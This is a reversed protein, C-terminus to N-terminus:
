HQIIVPTVNKTGGTAQQNLQYAGPAISLAARVPTKGTVNWINIRRGLLNFMEVTSAQTGSLVLVGERTDYRWSFNRGLAYRRGKVGSSPVISFAAPSIDEVSEDQYNAIRIRVQNSVLSMGAISEPVTWQYTGWGPDSATRASPVISFWTNGNDPSVQIIVGAIDEFASWRVILVSGVQVTSGGLPDLLLLRKALSGKSIIEIANEFVDDTGTSSAEIQLGNNDVAVEFERMVAVAPQAGAAAFADFGSLVTNGEMVYTMARHLATVFPDSWHLRVIYEGPPIDKFDFAHPQARFYTYVPNPPADAVGAVNATTAYSFRLGEKGSVLYAGDGEWGAVAGSSADGCNIRKHVPIFPVVAISATGVLGSAAAGVIFTGAQTGATVLGNTVVLSADSSNWVVAPQPDLPRRHQDLVTATLMSATGFALTAQSPVVLVSDAVPTGDVTFEVLYTRQPPTAGLAAITVLAEHVGSQLGAQDVINTVTAASGTVVASVTLWSAASQATVSSFTGFPTTIEVTKPSPATGNEPAEFRLTDSSIRISATPPTVGVWADPTYDAESNETIRAWGTFSLYDDSFRGLYVEANNSNESRDYGGTLTLFTAGKSAFKPHYMESTSGAPLPAANIPLAATIQKNYRYLALATHGINGPFCFWVYSNDPALSSWCGSELYTEVGNNVLGGNDIIFCKDWPLFDVAVKGNASLQYWNMYEDGANTKSWLLLSQTPDDILYRIVDGDSTNLGKRVIAWELGTAPDVWVDSCIGDTIFRLNSGDWDIVHVKYDLTIVIRYGGSCLIPRNQNKSAPLIQRELTESNDLGMLAGGGMLRDGGRLWVLRTAVNGTVTNLAAIDPAAIAATMFFPTVLMLLLHASNNFVKM